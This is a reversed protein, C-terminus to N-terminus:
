HVSQGSHSACSNKSLRHMQQHLFRKGRGLDLSAQAATPDAMGLNMFDPRRELVNKHRETGLEGSLFLRCSALNTRVIFRRGNRPSPAMRKLSNMMTQRSGIVKNKM